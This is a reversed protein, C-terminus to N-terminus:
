KGIFNEISRGLYNGVFFTLAGITSSKVIDALDQNKRNSEYNSDIVESFGILLPSAINFGVDKYSYAMGNNGLIYGSILGAAFNTIPNVIYYWAKRNKTYAM